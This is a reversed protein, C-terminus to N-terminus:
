PRLKAMVRPDLNGLYSVVMQERGAEIKARAAWHGSWGAAVVVLTAGVTWGVLHTRMYAAWTEGARRERQIRAWVAPRFNPSSRPTVRWAQLTDSLPDKSEPLNM